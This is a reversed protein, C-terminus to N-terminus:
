KPEIDQRGGPSGPPPIVPTSPTVSQSPTKVVPDGTEPPTLVGQSRSLEGEQRPPSQHRRPTAPSPQQEPAAQSSPPNPPTGQASAALAGALIIASAILTKDLSDNMPMEPHM